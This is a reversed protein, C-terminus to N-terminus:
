PQIEDTLQGPLYTRRRWEGICVPCVHATSSVLTWRERPPDTPLTDSRELDTAAVDFSTGCFTILLGRNVAGARLEPEAQLHWQAAPDIMSTPRHRIWSM